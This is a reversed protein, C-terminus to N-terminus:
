SPKKESILQRLNYAKDKLRDSAGKSAAVRGLTKLAYDYRGAKYSLASLLYYLTQEDMSCIPFKEQLNAKDLYDLAKEAFEAEEKYCAAIAKEDEPATDKLWSAKSQLLWSIKLCIYGLESEIAKKTTANLLCLKYRRLASDFTYYTEEHHRKTFNACIKERIVDIQKDTLQGFYKTLAAYGCEPCLVPDYKLVEVNQHVPRLDMETRVFRTKGTKIALSKFSTGCVPCEYSKALLIEAEKDM